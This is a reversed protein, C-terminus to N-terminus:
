QLEKKLWKKSEAVLSGFSIYGSKEAREIEARYEELTVNQPEIPNTWDIARNESITAM